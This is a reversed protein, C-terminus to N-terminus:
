FLHPLIDSTSMRRMKAITLVIVLRNVFRSSYQLVGIYARPICAYAFSLGGEPPREDNLVTCVTKSVPSATVWSSHPAHNSEM